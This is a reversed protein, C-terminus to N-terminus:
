WVKIEYYICTMRIVELSAFVMRVSFKVTEVKLDYIFWIKNSNVKYYSVDEEVDTEVESDVKVEVDAEITSM